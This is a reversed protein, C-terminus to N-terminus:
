EYEKYYDLISRDYLEMHKKNTRYATYVGLVILLVIVITAKM